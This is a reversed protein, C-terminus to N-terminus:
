GGSVPPLIAVEDMQDVTTADDAIKRNIAIVFQIKAIQPYHELIMRRLDLATMKESLKLTIKDKGIIEKSSAFLKVTITPYTQEGRAM